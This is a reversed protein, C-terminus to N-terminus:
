RVMRIDFGVVDRVSAMRGDATYIPAQLRRGLALRARDGLSCGAAKTSPRLLAAEWADAAEFAMLSIEFRRLIRAVQEMTVGREVSRGYSEAVNVTSMMGGRLIPMVTEAGREQLLVCMLAAADIVVTM